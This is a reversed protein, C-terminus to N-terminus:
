PEGFLCQLRQTVLDLPSLKGGTGLKELAEIDAGDIEARGPLRRRNKGLGRTRRKDINCMLRWRGLALGDQNRLVARKLANGIEFALLDCEVLAGVDVVQQNLREFFR